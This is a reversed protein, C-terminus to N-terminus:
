KLTVQWNHVCDIAFLDPILALRSTPTACILDMQVAVRHPRPAPERDTLRQLQARPGFPQQVADDRPLHDQM